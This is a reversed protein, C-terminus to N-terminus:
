RQYLYNPRTSWNKPGSLIGIPWSNWSHRRRAIQANGSVIHSMKACALAALPGHGQGDQTTTATANTGAPVNNVTVSVPGAGGGGM